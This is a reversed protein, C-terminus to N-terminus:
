FRFLILAVKCSSLYVNQDYRAGNKKSHSIYLCINYPFDFCMKHEFINKEGFITGKRPLTSFYYVAPCAVSQLRAYLFKM